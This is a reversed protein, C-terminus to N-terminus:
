HNDCSVSLVERIVADTMMPDTVCLRGSRVEIIGADILRRGEDSGVFREAIPTMPTGAALRLGVMLRDRTQERPTLYETGLRPREGAVIAEMYRDARRHNRSREGWRHDHAGIGFAVYEGHAWTALNYRCAHGSQAHNSIEYRVFGYKHSIDEFREYRDAQVDDDPAAAGATVERSLETGPEVTLSYTSIHDVGIEMAREVTRSWSEDTESPHGFILDIGVSRIGCARVGEVTTDIMEVTHVRGLADLVVPDFSQAGISVRTFGVDSLGRGLEDTWDEPNVEISVEAGDAIGFRDALADVVRGLETAELRSPTGGGFNVADLPGFPSEMAIETVLADVYAQHDLSRDISEDVIAFDCYPCRRRCFPVHVYACKWGAALDALATSDPRHGTM